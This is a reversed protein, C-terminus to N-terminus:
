RPPLWLRVAGQLLRLDAFHSNQSGVKPRVADDIRIKEEELVFHVHKAKRTMFPPPPTEPKTQLAKLYSTFRRLDTPKILVVELVGDFPDARQGLKLNPGVYKANLVDVSLYEGSADKGDITVTWYHPKYNLVKDRLVNVAREPEKDSESIEAQLADCFWGVGASECFYREGWNGTAVGIDLLREHPEELLDMLVDLDNPMGLTRALNNATGLPLIVLPVKTYVLRRAVGLVTGDGGAAIVVDTRKALNKGLEKDPEVSRVQHGTRELAQFLKRQAAAGARASPNQVLTVRRSVAGM